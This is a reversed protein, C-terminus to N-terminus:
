RALSPRLVLGLQAYGDIEFHEVEISHKGAELVVNASHAKPPHWTWDEIVVKGDVRVRIGDDSVTRIEYAGAELDVETSAITAFHDAPVKESPKGPWRFDLSSLKASDLPDSAKVAEWDAPPKGAGTSEWRHWRVNWETLLAFGPVVHTQGTDPFYVGIAFRRGSGSATVKLTAPLTGGRPTVEIGEPVKQIEFRGGRGLLRVTAESGVSIFNPTILPRSFDYPGWETMIIEARGRLAGAPLFAAVKGDVSPAQIPAKAVTKVPEELRDIKLPPNKWWNRGISVREEPGVALNEFDGINNEEIHHFESGDFLTGAKVFNNARIWVQSTERLRIATRDGRFTNGDIWYWESAVNRKTGYATKFLDGDEDWWLNIAIGNGEFANGDITNRNGHEISIGNACRAIYNGAIRTETSYGAWIGHDCEELRNEIFRNGVSFTAEIGNAAAHSFDNRYLLNRNCGGEGTRDLTEHGAWLFFGDGGHTASNYAFVNDSSQEYVLIGTSDQGRSYVGHSYGRICWDFKNHSVVNRSSRYMALGWGSNFSFDNDFIRCGDSRTMCIGNQGEHGQNGSITAGPCRDLYLGAWYRLWENDDNQHGYLWDEAAEAEPTSHLRQRWNGSLDCGEITLREVGIAHIGIKFGRIRANRITIDRGGEVLIATGSFADAATGEPSGVLTAGAFDFVRNTGTIRIPERLLHVGPGILREPAVACSVALTLSALAAARM